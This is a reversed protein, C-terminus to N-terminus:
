NAVPKPVQQTESIFPLRPESVEDAARILPITYEWFIGRIKDSRSKKDIPFLATNTLISTPATKPTSHRFFTWVITYNVWTAVQLDM